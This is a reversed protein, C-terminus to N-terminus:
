YSYLSNTVESVCNLFSHFFAYFSLLWICINSMSLLLLREIILIFNLQVLYELSNVVTPVSYQQILIHIMITCTILEFLRCCFFRWRFCPSRPFELQFCLTPAVWFYFLHFITTSPFNLTYKEITKVNHSPHDKTNSTPNQNKTYSQKAVEVKGVKSYHSKDSSDLSISSSTDNLNNKNYTTERFGPKYSYLNDKLNQQPRSQSNNNIMKLSKLDRMVLHFSVLKMSLTISSCLLIVGPIVNTVKNWSIFASLLLNLIINIIKISDVVLPIVVNNQFVLKCEMVYAIFISFSSCILIFFSLYICDSMSIYQGPISIFLLGYTRINELASIATSVVLMLIALNIFGYYNQMPSESALISAQEKVHVPFAHTNFLEDKCYECRFSNKCSCFGPIPSLPIFPLPSQISNCHSLKRIVISSPSSNISLDVTM